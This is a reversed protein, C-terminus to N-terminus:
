STGGFDQQTGKLQVRPSKVSAYRRVQENLGKRILKFHHKIITDYM